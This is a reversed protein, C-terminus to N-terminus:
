LFKRVTELRGLVEGFTPIKGWCLRRCEREYQPEIKDRLEKPPFLADSLAFRLEKPVADEEPQYLKRYQDQDAKIQGYEPSRVMAVVEEQGALAYADYYHRAERGLPVDDRMARTVRAHLRFLKEVFTRRFHLTRVRVPALDEALDVRGNAILFDGVISGIQKDEAPWNGGLVGPEILIEARTLSAVRRPREYAFRDMRFSGATARETGRYALPGIASVADCVAALAGDVDETSPDKGGKRPVEVLLDIDESFRQILNWGKSLSTGGKFVVTPGLRDVIGRLALGIFYDKEVFESTLGPRMEAGWVAAADLSARFDDQACLLAAM